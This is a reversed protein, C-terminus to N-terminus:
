VASSLEHQESDTDWEIKVGRLGPPWPTLRSASNGANRKADAFSWERGASITNDDLWPQWALDGKKFLKCGTPLGANKLQLHIGARTKSKGGSIRDPSVFEAGNIGIFTIM